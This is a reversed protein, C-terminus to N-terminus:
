QNAPDNWHGLHVAYVDQTTRNDSYTWSGNTEQYLFINGYSTGDIALDMFIEAFSNAPRNRYTYSFLRTTNDIEGTSRYTYKTTATGVADTGSSSYSGSGSGQVDWLWGNGVTGDNELVYLDFYLSQTYTYTKNLYDLVVTFTSQPHTDAAVLTNLYNDDDFTGSFTYQGDGNDAVTVTVARGYATGNDSTGTLVSYHFVQGAVPPYAANTWGTIVPSASQSLLLTDVKANSYASMQNVPIVISRSSSTTAATSGSKGYIQPMLGITQPAPTEVVPLEPNTKPPIEPTVTETETPNLGTGCAVLMLISVVLAFWKTTSKM